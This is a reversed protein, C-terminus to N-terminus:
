RNIWQARCLVVYAHLSPIPETKSTAPYFMSLTTANVGKIFDTTADPDDSHELLLAAMGPTASLTMLVMSLALNPEGTAFVYEATEAVRPHMDRHAYGHLVLDVLTRLMGWFEQTDLPSQTTGYLMLMNLIDM